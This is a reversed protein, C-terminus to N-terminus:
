KNKVYKDLFALMRTYFELQNDYKTFGHGENEKVMYEYPVNNKKLAAVMQESEAINVRPDNAGQAIFVPKKIKDANLSPSTKEFQEKDTEPNGVRKYFMNRQAEWYEPITNMFTFLNSVGVYDVAAAYLDPTSVLGSLAAYGGYSAGYIAIRNKDAIGLNILWNVGDTIDNQMNLGWQKDGLDVFNKGYGTSGRFNMQLVAYGRNAFMQVEPNYGWYDRLWPGGHPNIIVPLNKPEVNKPLTLYGHITNGDRSLYSVPTMKANYDVPINNLDMLLDLKNKVYDYIYYKGKNVDSSTVLVFKTFDYNYSGISIFDNAPVLASIKQYVAELKTDMFKVKPKDTYFMVGGITAYDTGGILSYLDVNPHKFIEKKIEGTPIDVEVLAETDSGISSIAYGTRNDEGFMLISFTGQNQYSKIKTFKQNNNKRYYYEFNIGDSKEAVCLQSNNDFLFNTFGDKNEYLMKLSGDNINLRYLSFYAPNDKNMSIIIEDNRKLTYNMDLIQTTVNAYPTLDIENGDDDTKYLHYIENGGIDKLYLVSENKLASGMIDDNQSFTLQYVKDDVLDKVFLNMANKWPSMFFLATGDPSISYGYSKPLALYDEINYKPVVTKSLKANLRAQLNSILQEAEKSTIFKDDAFPKADASNILKEEFAKQLFTEQPLFHGLQRMAITLADTRKLKEANIFSDSELLLYRNYLVDIPNEGHNYTTKNVFIKAFNAFSLYEANPEALTTTNIENNTKNFFPSNSISGTAGASVVSSFILISTLIFSLFFKKAM